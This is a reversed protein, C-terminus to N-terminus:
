PALRERVWDGATTRRYRLRDHMRGPRGQWFEMAQPRVRYGGWQPPVPVDGDHLREEVAAYSSALAARDAVVASQPSAWAGLQAGRPRGAFYDAVEQETLRESVGDIRVQRELPHWPFLLSCRPEHALETGKRSVTNTFFTFGGDPGDALGKLLVMRSAPQGDPGVTSVVMANPEHLGSARVQDFWRRFLVMPDPGADDEVLGAAGYEQRLAALAAAVSPPIHPATGQDGPM